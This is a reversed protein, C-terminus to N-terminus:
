VTLGAVRKTRISSQLSAIGKRTELSRVVGEFWGTAFKHTILRTQLTRVLTLLRLSMRSLCEPPVSTSSDGVADLADRETKSM